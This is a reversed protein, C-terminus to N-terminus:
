MKLPFGLVHFCWQLVRLVELHLRAKLRQKGTCIPDPEMHTDTGDLRGSISENASQRGPSIDAGTFSMNMVDDDDDCDWDSPALTNSNGSAQLHAALEALGNPGNM